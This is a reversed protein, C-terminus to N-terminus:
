GCGPGGAQPRTASAVCNVHSGSGGYGNRRLWCHHNGSNETVDLKEPLFAAFAESEPERVDCDASGPSQAKMYACIGAGGRTEWLSECALTELRDGKWRPSVCHRSIQLIGGAGEGGRPSPRPLPILPHRLCCPRAIGRMRGKPGGEGRRPSPSLPLTTGCVIARGATHHLEAPL